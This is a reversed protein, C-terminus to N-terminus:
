LRQRELRVVEYANAFLNALLVLDDYDVQCIRIIDDSSRDSGVRSDHVWLILNYGELTPSCTKVVMSASM